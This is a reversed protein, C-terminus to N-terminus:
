LTKDVSFYIIGLLLLNILFHFELIDSFIFLSHILFCSFLLIPCVEQFAVSLLTTMVGLVSSCDFGAQLM